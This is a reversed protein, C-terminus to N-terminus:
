PVVQVIRAECNSFLMCFKCDRLFAARATISIKWENLALVSAPCYRNLANREVAVRSLPAVM